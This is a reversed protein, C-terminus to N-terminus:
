HVIHENNIGEKVLKLLKQVDEWATKGQKMQQLWKKCFILQEQEKGPTQLWRKLSLLVEKKVGQSKVESYWTLVNEEHSIKMKKNYLYAYMTSFAETYDRDRVQINEHKWTLAPVLIYPYFSADPLMWRDSPTDLLLLKEGYWAREDNKNEAISLLPLKAITKPYQLQQGLDRNVSEIIRTITKKFGAYFEGKSQGSFLLTTGERKKTQLEGSLLTVGFRSTGDWQHNSKATLNCYDLKRGKYTLSYITDTNVQHNNRSLQGSSDIEFSPATNVSPIWNFYYPLFVVRENAYFLPSSHGEYKINLKLYEKAKWKHPLTVIISDKKQIFPLAKGSEKVKQVKFGHYLSMQVKKVGAHNNHLFKVYVNAQVGQKITLDIKYSIPVVSIHNAASKKYTSYYDQEEFERPQDSLEGTKLVQWDRILQYLNGGLLLSLILTIILFIRQKLLQHILKLYIILLLTLSLIWVSHKYWYFSDIPFGYLSDYKGDPNPDGLNLIRSFKKLADGLFVYNLPGIALWILITLPFVLKNKVILAIMLGLFYGILFTFAFYLLTYYFASIYLHTLPFNKGIYYIFFVIYTLLSYVFSVILGFIIKACLNILFAKNITLYITRLDHQDELRIVLVGLFVFFLLGGQVLFSTSLLFDGPAATNLLGMLEYALYGLLIIWFFVQRQMEKFTIALMNFFLKM